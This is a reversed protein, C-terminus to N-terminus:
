FGVEEFKEEHFVLEKTSLMKIIEPVDQFVKEENKIEKESLWINEGESIREKFKGKTNTVKFIFFIKDALMEKDVSYDMKHEIASLVPKGTLGTEEKLERLAAESLTEGWRVKGSIFGLYGYFPNKLRRQMLYKEGEKSKTVCIAMASVKPQKEIVVSDTDIRDVLRKGELTLLYKGEDSKEILELSVLRNVHFNFHSTNMKTTNLESYKASSKLTLVLLIDAQVPHIELEM